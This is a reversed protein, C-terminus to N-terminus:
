DGKEAIREIEAVAKYINYKATNRNSEARTLMVRADLVETNTAVKQLFRNQTIRYNEAASAVEKEATELSSKALALNELATKLQLDMKSKMDTLQWGIATKEAQKASLTRNKYFGDFLNIGVSASVVTENDYTYDRGEPSLNQGYSYFGAGLNVKPLYGARVAKRSYDAAEVLSQMYKIESRNSFMEDKLASYDGASKNLNTTEFPENVPINIGTIQELSFIATKYGSNATLLGQRASALESEVKLVENRAVFGVSFSLNIDKLQNELLAVAREAVAINEKAKLIEIYAKKVSLIIDNKLASEAYLEAEYKKSASLYSYKDAGGNFLNYTLELGIQSFQEEVNGFAKESSNKYAYGADARPYYGSKQADASHKASVSTFQTARLEANNQVAAEIAADLTLANASFSCLLLAFCFSKKM